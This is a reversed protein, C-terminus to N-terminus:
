NLNWELGCVAICIPRLATGLITNYARGTILFTFTMNQQFRINSYNGKLEHINFIM